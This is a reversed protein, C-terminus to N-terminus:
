DRSLLEVLEVSADFSAPGRRTCQLSSGTRATVVSGDPASFMLEGGGHRHDVNDFAAELLEVVTDPVGPYDLSWRRPVRDDTAEAISCGQEFDSVALPLERLVAYRAFPLNFDTM